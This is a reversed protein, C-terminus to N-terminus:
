SDEREAESFICSEEEEAETKEDDNGRECEKLVTIFPVSPKAVASGIIATGPPRTFPRVLCSSCSIASCPLLCLNLTLEQDM